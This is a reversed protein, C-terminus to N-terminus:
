LDIVYNFMIFINYNINYWNYIPVFKKKIQRHFLLIISAVIHGIETQKLKVWWIVDLVNSYESTINLIFTTTYSIITTCLRYWKM